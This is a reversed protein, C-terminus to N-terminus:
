ASRLSSADPITLINGGCRPRLRYRPAPPPAGPFKRPKSGALVYPRGGEQTDGVHARAADPLEFLHICRETIVAM